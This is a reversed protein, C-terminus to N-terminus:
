EPNDQGRSPLWSNMDQLIEDIPQDIVQRFVTHPYRHIGAGVVRGEADLFRRHVVVVPAGVPIGLLEADAQGVTGVTTVQRGRAPRPEAKTMLLLGVKFKGDIGPPLSDYAPKAFYFDVLCVPLRRGLHLRLLYVYEEYTPAGDALVDPLAVNERRDLVQVEEEPGVIWSDFYREGLLAGQTDANASATVRDGVFTGRGQRSHILGQAALLGIAGRVTVPSVGHAKALELVTPLRQGAQWRGSSINEWFEAALRGYATMGDRARFSTLNTPM